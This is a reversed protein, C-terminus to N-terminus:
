QDKHYERAAERDNLDDSDLSDIIGEIESQFPLIETFQCGVCVSILLLALLPPGTTVSLNM